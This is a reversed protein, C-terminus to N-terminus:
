VVRETNAFEVQRRDRVLGVRRRMIQPIACFARLRARTRPSLSLSTPAASPADTYDYTYSYESGLALPVVAALLATRFM